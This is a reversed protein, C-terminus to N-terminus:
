NEDDKTVEFYLGHFLAGHQKKKYTPNEARKEGQWYRCIMAGQM